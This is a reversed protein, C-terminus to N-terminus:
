HGLVSAAASAAHLWQWALSGVLGGLFAGAGVVALWRPAPAIMSVARAATLKLATGSMRASLDRLRKEVGELVTIRDDFRDVRHSVVELVIIAHTLKADLTELTPIPGPPLEHHAMAM